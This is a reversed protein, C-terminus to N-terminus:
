TKVDFPGPAATLQFDTAPPKELIVTKVEGPVNVVGAEVVLILTVTTPPPPPLPVTVLTDTVVALPTEPVTEFGVVVGAICNLKPAIVGLETAAVPVTLPLLKLPVLM